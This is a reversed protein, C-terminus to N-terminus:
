AASGNSNNIVPKSDLKAQGAIAGPSDALTGFKVENFHDWLNFGSTFSKMIVKLKWGEYFNKIKVKPYSHLGMTVPEVEEEVEATKLGVLSM